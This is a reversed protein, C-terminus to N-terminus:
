PFILDGIAFAADRIAMAISIKALLQTPVALSM